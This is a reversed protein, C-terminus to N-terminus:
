VLRGNVPATFLGWALGKNRATVALVICALMLLMIEAAPGALWIGPEGMLTPLVFTLPIAFFYTKTLSLLAARGADGIAQFYTAVMMVPGAIFFMSVMVPMIRAVENIVAPDDVFFGGVQRAFLVLMVEAALTYVLAVLMGLRLSSDSRHWQRAGYNNGVISQLAHSLGLLPLFNFTMVRTAIGYASVTEAYAETRTMQLAMIIAGSGLAIGLFSLSQPAGLSLIEKWRTGVGNWTRPHWTSGTLRMRTEGTVRFRIIILLALCQAAVTGWASGAVGWELVVILLYNFGMNALSVLLSMAAMFGVRGENRLTDSQLALVFTIPSCFILISLYLYGMGAMRADGETAQYLVRDGFGIFLLMLILSVVVALGHASAFGVAAHRYRRGGLHRAVISSMGSSVLTSLAVIVMFAPFTLTVAALADPGVYLGLFVADVITLLGNMGMVFIIPLATKVFLVGLPSEIFRRGPHHREATESPHSM